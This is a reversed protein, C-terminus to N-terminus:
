FSVENTESGRQFNMTSQHGRYSVNVLNLQKSFTELLLTNRIRLKSFRDVRNAEYYVWVTEGTVQSGTFTLTNQKGDTIVTFNNEVYKKVEADFATTNPNIGIASSIDPSNLKTTFKLTKSDENYDVKTMSSHFDAGVFSMMVGLIAILTTFYKKM